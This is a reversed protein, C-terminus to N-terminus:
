LEVAIHQPIAFSPAFSFLAYYGLYLDAMREPWIQFIGHLSRLFSMCARAEKCTVFAVCGRHGQSGDKLLLLAVVADRQAAYPVSPLSPVDQILHPRSLYAWHGAFRPGGAIVCVM